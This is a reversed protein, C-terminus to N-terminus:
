FSSTEKVPSEGPEKGKWKYFLGANLSPAAAVNTGSFAFGAALTGGMKQKFFSGILKIGFAGYEQNNVYLGTYAKDHKTGNYFSQLVNLFVAAYSGNGGAGFEMGATWNSSFNSTRIVFGGYAFGYLHKSGAGVSFIPEFSLASYGTRLYMSDQRDKALPFEVKGQFSAAIKKDIFQYRIAVQPNGLGARNGAISKPLTSPNVLDSSSVYKFPLWVIGTIKPGLGYETYSQITIDTIKRETDRLSPGNILSTYPGVVSLGLHTFGEKNKRAWPSQANLGSFMSSYVLIIVFNVYKYKKM